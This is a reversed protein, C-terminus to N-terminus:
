FVNAATKNLKQGVLFIGRGCTDEIEIVLQFLATVCEFAYVILLHIIFDFQGRCLFVFISYYKVRSGGLEKRNPLNFKFIFAVRQNCLKEYM